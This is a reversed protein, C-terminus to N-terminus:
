CTNVSNKPLAVDADVTGGARNTNSVLDGQRGGRLALAATVTCLTYVDTVCGCCYGAAARDAKVVRATRVPVVSSGFVVDM